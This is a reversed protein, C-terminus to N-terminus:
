GLERELVQELDMVGRCSSRDPDLWVDSGEPGARESALERARLEACARIKLKIVEGSRITGIRLLTYVQM